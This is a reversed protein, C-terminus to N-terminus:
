ILKYEKKGVFLCVFLCVVINNVLSPHSRFNVNLSMVADPNENSMREHMSQRLLANDTRTEPGLQMADGALLLCASPSYIMSALVESEL